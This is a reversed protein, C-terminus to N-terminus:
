RILDQRKQQTLSFRNDEGQTYRQSFPETSHPHLLQRQKLACLQNYENL